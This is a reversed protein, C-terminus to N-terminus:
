FLTSFFLSPCPIALYRSRIDFIYVFIPKQSKTGYEPTGFLCAAHKNLKLFFNRGVHDM